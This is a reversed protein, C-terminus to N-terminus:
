IEQEEKERAADKEPRRPVTRPKYAFYYIEEWIQATLIKKM